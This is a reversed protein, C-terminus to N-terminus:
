SNKLVIQVLINGADRCRDIVKELLDYLDKLAVVSTADHPANYLDKLREVMLLDAQGELYQLKLNQDKIKGLDPSSRLERVMAQLTEMSQQLLEAQRQFGARPLDTPSILYREAFKELTKPIKYLAQALADIDERELPTVFTLTLRQNIEETIRKEKRRVVAFQDLGAPDPSSLHRVFIRVSEHAEDASRELLDFFIDGGGVLRQLSIM